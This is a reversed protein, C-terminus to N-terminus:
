AIRRVGGISPEVMISGFESFEPIDANVVYSFAYGDELDANDAEWETEHKSVFLLSYMVGIDTYNKIVHYVMAEYKTEFENVMKKEDDDLWYLVGGRESLNLVGEKDFEKIPQSCIHLMRMRKLAEAKQRERLDSM